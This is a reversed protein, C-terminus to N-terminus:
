KQGVGALTLFLGDLVSIYDQKANDFLVKAYVGEVSPFNIQWRITNMCREEWVM